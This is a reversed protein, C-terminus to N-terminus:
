TNHTAAKTATGDVEDTGIKVLLENGISLLLERFLVTMFRFDDIYDNAITRATEALLLSSLFFLLM